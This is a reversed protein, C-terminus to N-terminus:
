LTEEETGSEQRTTGDTDAILLALDGVGLAEAEMDSARSSVQAARAGMLGIESIRLAEPDKGDKSKKRSEKYIRLEDEVVSYMEAALKDLRAARGLVREKLAQIEKDLGLEEAKARVGSALHADYAATRAVWNHKTSLDELSRLAVVGEGLNVRLKELSRGSGLLLYKQFYGFTKRAEGETKEWLVDPM